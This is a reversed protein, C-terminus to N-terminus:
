EPPVLVRQGPLARVHQERLARARQERLARARQGPLARAHQEPLARAHQEPLFLVDRAVPRRVADPFSFEPATLRRTTLHRHSNGSDCSRPRAFDLHPACIQSADRRGLHRDANHYRTGDSRYLLPDESRRDGGAAPGAPRIIEDGAIAAAEATEAARSRPDPGHSAARDGLPAPQARVNRASRPSRLDAVLWEVCLLAADPRRLRQHGCALRAADYRFVPATKSREDVHSTSSRIARAM